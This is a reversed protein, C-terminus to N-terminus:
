VCWTYQENYFNTIKKLLKSYKICFLVQPESQIHSAFLVNCLGLASHTILQFGRTKVWHKFKPNFEEANDNKSLLKIIKEGKARDPSLKSGKNDGDIFTAKCFDEFEKHNEMATTHPM